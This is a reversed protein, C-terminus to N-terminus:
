IPTAYPIVASRRDRAAGGRVAGASSAKVLTLVNEVVFQGVLTRSTAGFAKRVGIGPGARPDPENINV